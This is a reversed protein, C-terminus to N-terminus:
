KNNVRLGLQIMAAATKGQSYGLNALIEKTQKRSKTVNFITKVAILFGKRKEADLDTKKYQLDEYYITALKLGRVTTSVDLGRLLECVLEYSYGLNFWSQIQQRVEPSYIRPEAASAAAKTAAEQFAARERPHNDNWKDRGANTIIRAEERTLPEIVGAALVFRQFGKSMFDIRTDIWEQFEEPSVSGGRASSFFSREEDTCQPTTEMAMIFPSNALSSIDREEAFHRRLVGKYGLALTTDHLLNSLEFVLDPHQPLNQALAEGMVRYGSILQVQQWTFKQQERSGREM